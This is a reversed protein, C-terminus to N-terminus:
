GAARRRGADHQERIARAAKVVPSEEPGAPAGTTISLSTGLSKFIGSGAAIQATLSKVVLTIRAKDEDSAKVLLEALEATPGGAPLLAAAEVRAEARKQVLEMDAIKDQLSKLVASEGAAGQGNGNPMGGEQENSTDHASKSVGGEDEVDGAVAQIAADFEAVSQRIMGAKKAPKVDGDSMISGISDQLAYVMDMLKRRTEQAGNLDAFTAAAKEIAEGAEAVARSAEALDAAKTMADGADSESACRGKARCGGEDPCDACPKWAAKGKGKGPAKGAMGKAVGDVARSYQEVTAGLAEAREDGETASVIRRVSEGFAAAMRSLEEAAEDGGKTIADTILPGSQEAWEDLAVLADPAGEELAKRVAEEDGSKVLLVVADANAPEDVQSVEHIRLRTIQSPGKPM